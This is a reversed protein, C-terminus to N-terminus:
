PPPEANSWIRQIGKAHDVYEAVRKLQSDWFIRLKVPGTNPIFEISEDVEDPLPIERPLFLDQAIAKNQHDDTSTADDIHM